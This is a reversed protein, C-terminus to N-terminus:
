NALAQHFMKSHRNIAKFKYGYEKLKDIIEPLAKLTNSNYETDHFLVCIIDNSKAGDIVNQVIEDVSLNVNDDGSNVNWDAYLYGYGRMSHTLRSMIGDNVVDAFTNGSGGPFRMVTPALSTWMAIKSSVSKINNVFVEENTYM